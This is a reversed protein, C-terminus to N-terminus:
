EIHITKQITHVRRNYGSVVTATVNLTGAALLEIYFPSEHKLNPDTSPIYRGLTDDDVSISCLEPYLKGVWSTKLWYIEGVQPQWENSGHGEKKNYNGLECDDSGIRLNDITCTGQNIEIKNVVKSEIGTAVPDKSGYGSITTVMCSIPVEVHWWDDQINTCKYGTNESSNVKPANYSDGSLQLTKGYNVNDAKLDFEIKKEKIEGITYNRGLSFKITTASTGTKVFSVASTSDGIPSVNVTDTAYTLNNSVAIVNNYTAADLDDCASVNGQCGYNIVIESINVTGSGATSYHYFRVFRWKDLLTFPTGSELMQQEHWHTRDVSTLLWLEEGSSATFTATVDTIQTIGYSSSSSIGLYGEHNLTVHGSAYNAANNYEWTVGKNDVMTGAGSSLTPSNSSNLTITYVTDANTRVLSIIGNSVFSSVVGVSTCTAAVALIIGNRKNSTIKM